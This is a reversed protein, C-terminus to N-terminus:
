LSCPICHNLNESIEIVRELAAHISGTETPSICGFLDKHFATSLGCHECIPDTIYCSINNIKMYLCGRKFFDKDLLLFIYSNLLVRNGLPTVIKVSLLKTSFLISTIFIM